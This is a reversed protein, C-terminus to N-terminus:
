CAHSSFREFFTDVDKRPILIRGLHPAEAFARPLCCCAAEILHASSRVSHQRWYSVKNTTRLTCLLSIRKTCVPLATTPSVPWTSGLPLCNAGGCSTRSCTGPFNGDGFNLREFFRKVSSAIQQTASRLRLRTEILLKCRHSSILQPLQILPLEVWNEGRYFDDMQTLAHPYLGSLNVQGFALCQSTLFQQM